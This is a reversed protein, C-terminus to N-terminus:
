GASLAWVGVAICYPAFIWLHGRRVFRLLLLLAGVGSAFAVATGLLLPGWPTASADEIKVLHLVVAGLIPVLAMLFAFRGVAARAGGACLGASITAGSRSIGPLIAFAQALGMATATRFEVGKQGGRALPILALIVGTVCLLGGVVGIRDFLSEIDDKFLLGVVGAPISAWLILVVTRFSEDDTYSSRWAGPRALGLSSVLLARIDSLFVVVISLATGLHMFVEVLAGGPADYDLLNRAIALHGSSSVPLFETLGQILGLLVANGYTM